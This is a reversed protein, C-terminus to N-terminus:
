IHCILKFLVVLFFLHILNEKIFVWVYKKIDQETYPWLVKIPPMLLQFDNIDIAIPNFREEYNLEIIVCDKKYRENWLYIIADKKSQIFKRFAEIDEIQYIKKNDSELFAFIVGPLKMGNIRNFSELIMPYLEKMQMGNIKGFDPQFVGMTKIIDVIEKSQVTWFKM